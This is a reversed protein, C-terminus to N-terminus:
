WAHLNQLFCVINQIPSFRLLADTVPEPCQISDSLFCDFGLKQLEDRSMPHRATTRHAMLVTIRLRQEENLERTLIDYDEDNQCVFAQLCVNSERVSM